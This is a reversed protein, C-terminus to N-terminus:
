SKEVAPLMVSYNKGAAILNGQLDANHWEHHKVVLLLPGAIRGLRQGLITYHDTKPPIDLPTAKASIEYFGQSSMRSDAYVRPTETSAIIELVRKIEPVVLLSDPTLRNTFEYEDHVKLFFKEFAGPVPCIDEFVIDGRLYDAVFRQDLVQNQERTFAM